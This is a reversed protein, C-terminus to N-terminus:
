RIGENQEVNVKSAPGTYRACAALAIFTEKM